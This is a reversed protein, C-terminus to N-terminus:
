DSLTLTIIKGSPLLVSIARPLNTLIYQRAHAFVAAAVGESAFMVAADLRAPKTNLALLGGNPGPTTNVFGGATILAAEDAELQELM